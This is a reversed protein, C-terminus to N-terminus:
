FYYKLGVKAAPSFNMSSSADTNNTGVGNNSLYYKADLEAFASVNGVVKAEAGIIGNVYYDNAKATADARSASSSLGLGVGVYPTLRGTGLSYMANVDAQISGNQPAYDVNARVGLGFLVKSAGVTAGFTSYFPVTQGFANGQAGSFVAATTVGAYLGSNTQDDAVTTVAPTTDGIVVTTPPPTVPTTTVTTSTTTNTSGQAARAELAAV